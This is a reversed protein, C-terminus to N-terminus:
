SNNEKGRVAELQMDKRISLLQALIAGGSNFVADYVDPVRGPVFSQHFEDSIGYLTAFIVALVSAYKSYPSAYRFARYLLWGLIGYEILHALKDFGELQYFFGPIGGIESLSSLYYILALYSVVFLWYVYVPRCALKYEIFPKDAALSKLYNKM